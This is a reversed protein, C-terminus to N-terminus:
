QFKSTSNHASHQLFAGKFSHFKFLLWAFLVMKPCSLASFTNLTYYVTCVPRMQPSENLSDKLLEKKGNKM